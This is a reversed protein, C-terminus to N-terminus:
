LKNLKRQWKKLRLRSSPEPNLVLFMRSKMRLPQMGPKRPLPTTSIIDSRTWDGRPRQQGKSTKTRLRSLLKTKQVDYRKELSMLPQTNIGSVQGNTLSSRYHMASTSLKTRYPKTLRHVSKPLRKM